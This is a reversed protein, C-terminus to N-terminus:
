GHSNWRKVFEKEPHRLRRTERSIQEFNRSAQHQGIGETSDQLPQWIVIALELPNEANRVYLLQM